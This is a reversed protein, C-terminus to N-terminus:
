ARVVHIKHREACIVIHHGSRSGKANEKSQGERFWLCQYLERLETFNLRPM